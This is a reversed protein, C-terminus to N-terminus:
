RCNREEKYPRSKDRGKKCDRVKHVNHVIHVPHKKEIEYIPRASM